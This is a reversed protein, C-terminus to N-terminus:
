AYPVIFVSLRLWQLHKLCLILSLPLVLMLGCLGVPISVWCHTHTHTYTHVHPRADCWPPEPTVTSSRCGGTRERVESPSPPSPPCAETNERERGCADRKRSSLSFCYHLKTKAPNNKPPSKRMPPSRLPSIQSRLLPPNLKSWVHTHPPPLPPCPHSPPDKCEYWIFLFTHAPEPEARLEEEKQHSHVFYFFVSKFSSTHPPPEQASSCEM